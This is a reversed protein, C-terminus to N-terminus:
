YKVFRHQINWQLKKSFTSVCKIIEYVNNKLKSSKKDKVLKMKYLHRFEETWIFKYKESGRLLDFYRRGSKIVEDMIYYLLIKGPSLKSYASNIVPKYYGYSNEDQFGVCLAATIGDIKLCDFSVVGYPIGQLMIKLFSDDLTWGWRTIHFKHYDDLLSVAEEYECRKYELTSTKQINNIQRRIDERLNKKAHQLFSAASSYENLSIYPAIDYDLTCGEYQQFLGYAIFTDWGPLESIAKIAAKWLLQEDGYFLPGGYDFNGYGVPMLCKQFCRTWDCQHICLPWILSGIDLMQINLIKLEASNDKSYFDFWLRGLELGSFINKESNNNKWIAFNAVEDFSDYWCIM